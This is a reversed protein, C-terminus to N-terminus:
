TSAAPMLHKLRVAALEMQGALDRRADALAPVLRQVFFDLNAEAVRGVLRVIVDLTQDEIVERSLGTAIALASLLQGDGLVIADEWAKLERPLEVGLKLLREGDAARFAPIRGVKLPTIAVPTGGVVVEDSRLDAVVSVQASAESM